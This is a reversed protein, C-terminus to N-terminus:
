DAPCRNLLKFTGQDGARFQGFQSLEASHSSCCEKLRLGRLAFIQSVNDWNDKSLQILHIIILDM